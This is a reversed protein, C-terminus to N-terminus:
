IIKKSKLWRYGEISKYFKERAMAEKRTVFKETYHLTYPLHGKTYKVKGSNHTKIRTDPNESSSYYYSGDKLSKIIYSYFM